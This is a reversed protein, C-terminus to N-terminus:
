ENGSSNAAARSNIRSKIWTEVEELVFAVPSQRTGTDTLQVKAPFAKNKEYRDITSRSLGTMEQVKRM